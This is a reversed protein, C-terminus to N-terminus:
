RGGHEKGRSKKKKKPNKEPPRSINGPFSLTQNISNRGFTSPRERLRYTVKEPKRKSRGRIRGLPSKRKM